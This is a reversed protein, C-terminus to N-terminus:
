ESFTNAIVCRPPAHAARGRLARVADAEAARGSVNRPVHPVVAFCRISVAATPGSTAAEAIKACLRTSFRWGSAAANKRGPPPGSNSVPGYMTEASTCRSPGTASTAPGCARRRGRVGSRPAPADSSSSISTLHRGM